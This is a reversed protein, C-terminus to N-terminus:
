SRLSRCFSTTCAISARRFRRDAVHGPHLCFCPSSARSHQFPLKLCCASLLRVECGFAKGLKVAMHGLGGLGVM